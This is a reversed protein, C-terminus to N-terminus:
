NKLIFSYGSMLNEPLNIKLHKQFFERRYNAAPCYCNPSGEGYRIHVTGGDQRIEFNNKYAEILKELSGSGKEGIEQKFKFRNFCGKGCGEM